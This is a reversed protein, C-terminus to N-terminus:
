DIIKRVGTLGFRPRLDASLEERLDRCELVMMPLSFISVNLFNELFIIHGMGKQAREEDTQSRLGPRLAQVEYIKLIEHGADEDITFRNMYWNCISEPGGKDSSEIVFVLKQTIKRMESKAITRETTLHIM